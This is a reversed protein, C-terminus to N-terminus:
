LLCPGIPGLGRPTADARRAHAAGVRALRVVLLNGHGALALTLWGFMYPLDNGFYYPHTTWSATLFFLLSIAAGGLAALRYALGTLAGIGVAIEGLAILLGLLPAIPQALHILPALPSAREFAQFQAQISNAVDPNFFGPDLLKDLGAYVFTAGFFLRLPLLAAAPVAAERWEM